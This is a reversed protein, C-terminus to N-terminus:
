SSAGVTPRGAIELARDVIADCETKDYSFYHGARLRVPDGAYYREYQVQRQGFASMTLDYAVNYLKIREEASLDGAGQFYKEVDTADGGSFDAESPRVMLGGAGLTQLIEIVHPYAQPLFERLTQLPELSTHVTGTQRVEHEVESRVICSKILELYGVCKGLMEQVHVFGDTGVSQALRMTTGVALQMKVLGRVGTQHASHERLNTDFYMANALDVDKYIFVRDWPVLVEDFAVLADTEEFNAALPHDFSSADGRDIPERCIFRMGPTDVPVAFVLAHAEDGEKMGPINYIIIEDAEPGLTALMRAGQVIIGDSNEDAVGLHLFEEKQEASSKSRDTQPPILAHTLFLDNERIHEYYGVINEGYQEGGRAFVDRADAFAMVTTNLFDQSRGVMGLTHEAFAQFAKRRKVLDEHSRPMMFATAVPDGSTPSEYLCYDSHAPEHQLDYLEAIRQVSARFVPHDAVDEVRQGDLWVERSRNRLGQIYDSGTRASM